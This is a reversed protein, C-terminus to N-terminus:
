LSFSVKIVIIANLLLHYDTNNSKKKTILYNSNILDKSESSCSQELLRCAPVQLQLRAAMGSAPGSVTLMCVSILGIM